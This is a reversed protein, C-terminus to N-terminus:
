GAVGAFVVGALVVGTLVAGTLTAGALVVGALVAGSFEVWDFEVGSFVVGAALAGTIVAGALVFGNIVVEAFSLLVPVPVGGGTCFVGTATDEVTVATGPAPRACLRERLAVSMLQTVAQTSPM